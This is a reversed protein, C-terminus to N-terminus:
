ERLRVSGRCNRDCNRWRSIISGITGDIVGESRKFACLACNAFHIAIVVHNHLESPTDVANIMWKEKTCGVASAVLV